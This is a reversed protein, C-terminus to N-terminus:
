LNRRERIIARVMKEKLSSANGPPLVFDLGLRQALGLLDSPSKTILVYYLDDNNLNEDDEYYSRLVDFPANPAILTPSLRKEAVYRDVERQIEEYGTADRISEFDTGFMSELAAGNDIFIKVLNLYKHKYAYAIPFWGDDNEWEIMSMDTGLTRLTTILLRLTNEDKAFHFVSGSSMMTVYRPNQNLLLTTIKFVQEQEKPTLDIGYLSELIDVLRYEVLGRKQEEKTLTLTAGRELLFLLGNLNHELVGSAFYRYIPHTLNPDAGNDLLSRLSAVDASSRTYYSLATRGNPYVQNVNAHGEKILIDILPVSKYAYRLSDGIIAGRRLFLRTLRIVEPDRVRTGEELHSLFVSLTGLLSTDIPVDRDVGRIRQLQRRFSSEESSVINPNAGNVLLFRIRRFDGKDCAFRLMTQNHLPSVYDVDGFQVMLNDIDPYKNNFFDQNFDYTSVVPPPTIKPTDPRDYWRRALLAMNLILTKGNTFADYIYSETLFETWLDYLHEDVTERYISGRERITLLDEVSEIKEFRVSRVAGRVDLPESM